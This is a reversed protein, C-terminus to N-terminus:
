AGRPPRLATRGSFHDGEGPSGNGIQIVDEIEMASSIWTERFLKDVTQPLGGSRQSAMGLTARRQPASRMEPAEDFAIM